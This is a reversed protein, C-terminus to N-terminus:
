QMRPSTRIADVNPVGLVDLSQVLKVFKETESYYIQHGNKSKMGDPCVHEDEKKLNLLESKKGKEFQENLRRSTV